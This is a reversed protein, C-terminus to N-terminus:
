SLREKLGDRIIKIEKLRKELTYIDEELQLVRLEWGYLSLHDQTKIDEKTWIM